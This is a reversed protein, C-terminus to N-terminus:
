RGGASSREAHRARQRLDLLGLQDESAPETAARDRAAAASRPEAGRPRAAAVPEPNGSRPDPITWRNTSARGGGAAQASARREDLLAARARRYTSDAM